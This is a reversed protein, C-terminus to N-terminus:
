EGAGGKRRLLYPDPDPVPAPTPTAEQVRVITSTPASKEKEMKSVPPPTLKPQDSAKSRDPIQRVLIAVLLAIIALVLIINGALAGRHSHVHIKM